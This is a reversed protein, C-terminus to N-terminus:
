VDCSQMQVENGQSLLFIKAMSNMTSDTLGPLGSIFEKGDSNWPSVFAFLCMEISVQFDAKGVKCCFLLICSFLVKSGSCNNNYLLIAHHFSEKGRVLAHPVDAINPESCMDEASNWAANHDMSMRHFLM